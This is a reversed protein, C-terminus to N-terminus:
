GLSATLHQFSNQMLFSLGFALPWFGMGAGLLVEKKDNQLAIAFPNAFRFIM